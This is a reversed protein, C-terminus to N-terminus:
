ICKFVRYKFRSSSKSNLSWWSTDVDSDSRMLSEMSGKTWAKQNTTELYLSRSFFKFYLVKLLELNQGRAGVGPTSRPTLHWLIFAFGGINVM